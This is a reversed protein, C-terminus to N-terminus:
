KVRGGNRRPRYTSDAYLPDDYGTGRMTGILNERIADRVANNQGKSPSMRGVFDELVTVPPNRSMARQAKTYETSESRIKGGGAYHKLKEARSNSADDKYSM